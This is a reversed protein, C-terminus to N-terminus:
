TVHTCMTPLFPPASSTQSPMAAPNVRCPNVPHDHSFHSGSNSISVLKSLDYCDSTMENTTGEAAPTKPVMSLQSISTEMTSHFAVVTRMVWVSSARPQRILEGVEEM